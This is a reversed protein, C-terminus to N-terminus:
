RPGLWERAADIATRDFYRIQAPVFPRCLISLLRDWTKEGVMALQTISAFQKLDPEVENWTANRDWGHFDVLELLVNIKGHTKVLQQFRPAFRRYDDRLLTGNVRVELTKGGERETLTVAM